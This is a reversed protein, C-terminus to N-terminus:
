ASASSPRFELILLSGAGLCRPLLVVLETLPFKVIWGLAV